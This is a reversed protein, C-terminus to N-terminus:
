FVRFEHRIREGGLEEVEIVVGQGSGSIIQPRREVPEGPTAM